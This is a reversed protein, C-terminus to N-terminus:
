CDLGFIKELRNQNQEKILSYCEDAKEWTLEKQYNKLLKKKFDRFNLCHKESNGRIQYDTEQSPEQKKKEDFLKNQVLSGNNQQGQSFMTLEASKTPFINAGLVMQRFGEYDM